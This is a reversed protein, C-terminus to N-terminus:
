HIRNSVQNVPTPFHLFVQCKRQFSLFFLFSFTVEERFTGKEVDCRGKWLSITKGSFERLATRRQIAEGWLVVSKKQKRSPIPPLHCSLSDIFAIFHM